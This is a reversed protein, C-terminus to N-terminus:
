RDDTPGDDTALVTFEGAMLADVRPLTVVHVSLCGGLGRAGDAGSMTVYGPVRITGLTVGKARDADYRRQGKRAGSTSLFRRGLAEAAIDNLVWSYGYQGHIEHTSAVTGDLLFLAQTEITGGAAALEAKASSEQASLGSAWQSLFGDTDSREFSEAQARASVTADAIHQAATKGEITTMGTMHAALGTDVAVATERPVAPM